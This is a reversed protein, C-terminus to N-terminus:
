LEDGERMERKKKKMKKEGELRLRERALQAPVRAFSDRFV